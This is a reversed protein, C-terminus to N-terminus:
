AVAPTGDAGREEGVVVALRREAPRPDALQETVGAHGGARAGRQQGGRQGGGAGVPRAVRRGEDDRSPCGSSLAEVLAGPKM